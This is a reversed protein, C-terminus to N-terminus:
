RWSKRGVQGTVTGANNKDTSLVSFGKLLEEYLVRAAPNYTWVGEGVMEFYSFKKLVGELTKIDANHWTNILKHLQQLSLGGPHTKMAKIM